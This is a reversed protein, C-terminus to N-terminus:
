PTIVSPLQKFQIPTYYWVFNHYYVICQKPLKNFFHPIKYRGNPMPYLEISDNKAISDTLLQQANYYSSGIVADNPQVPFKNNYQNIKRIRVVRWIANYKFYFEDASYPYQWKALILFEQMPNSEKRGQFITQTTAEFILLQKDKKILTKPTVACATTMELLFSLLIVLLLYPKIKKM